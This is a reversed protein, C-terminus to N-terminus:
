ALIFIRLFNRFSVHVVGQDSSLKAAVKTRGVQSTWKAAAKIYVSQRARARPTFIGAIGLRPVGKFRASQSALERGGTGVAAVLTRASSDILILSRERFLKLIEIYIRYIIYALVQSACYRINVHLFIFITKKNYEM